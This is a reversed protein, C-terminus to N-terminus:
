NRRSEMEAKSEFNPLCTTGRFTYFNLLRKSLLEGVDVFFFAFKVWKKTRLCSKARKFFWIIM